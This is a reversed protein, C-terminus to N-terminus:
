DMEPYSVLAKWYRELVSATIVFDIALRSM